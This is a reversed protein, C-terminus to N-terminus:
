ESEKSKEIAEKLDSWAKRIGDPKDFEERDVIVGTYEGNRMVYYYRDNKPIFEVKMKGPAKKLHYTFAIKSKGQPQADMEVESIVVGIAGGYFKRFLGDGDDVKGSTVDVGNVVFKEYEKDNEEYSTIDSIIKEGDMEVILQEVDDINVIYAFADVIEKLPKDLIDLSSETVTLVENGDEFMAFVESGKVKPKGILLRVNGETTEVGLVYHPSDLGYQALDQPDKEIFDVIRTNIMADILSYVSYYSAEGELPEIMKWKTEDVKKASFVTQGGREMSAFSVNEKEVALITKDRLDKESCKLKRGDYASIVYVRGEDKKKVYYGQKTFTENGILITNETGDRMKAAIEVPNDFGYQAPDSVNDEVVKDSELSALTWSISEVANKDARLGEPYSFDWDEDQKSLVLKEDNNRITIEVMEKSDLELIKVTEDADKVLSDKNGANKVLLFYAGGLLALVVALIIVTKFSKM